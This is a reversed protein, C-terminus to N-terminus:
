RALVPSASWQLPLAAASAREPDILMSRLDLQM